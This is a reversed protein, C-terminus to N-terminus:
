FNFKRLNNKDSGFDRWNEILPYTFVKYKKNKLVTVLDEIKNIDLRNMIKIVKKNFVYIGTNISFDIEPKEKFSFFKNNRSLIVGYPNKYRFNKTAITLISKKKKHFKMLQNLNVDSIVDCNVVLFNSSIKKILRISGITGLATKEELFKIKLTFSNNIYIFKKIIKKLFFVSIYINNFNNKKLNELIYQLLPKNNFKLLAKPCNKTLSGLRKGYGGAMIVAHEKNRKKLINSKINHVYVGKIKKNKVIPVLNYENLKELSINNFDAVSKVFFPKKNLIDRISSNINSGKIFARRIDGDNIIGIFNKNQDIVLAFKLESSNINNIAELITSHDYITIKKLRNKNLLM